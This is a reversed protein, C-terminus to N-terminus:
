LNWASEQRGIVGGYGGTGADRDMQEAFWNWSMYNDVPQPAPEYRVMEAAAEVALGLSMVRDDNPSGTMRGDKRVYRMLENITAACPVELDGERLASNLQDIMLPKSQATTRFGAKKRMPQRGRQVNPAKEWYLNPYNVRRNLTKLTSLGHTNSEVCIIATGYYWGLNALEFGFDDPDIKGHWHAAVSAKVLGNEGDLYPLRIVHASCFDGGSVNASTDAGIAYRQGWEYESFVELNGKSPDPHFESIGEFRVTEGATGAWCRDRMELMLNVDFVTQGSRIFAVAPDYPYEQHLQWEPLERKKREYWEGDRGPNANWPMFVPTFGNIGEVARNWFDEFFGGSGNATSLAFIRGGIDAAPEISAWTEAENEFFAWEDIIIRYATEGRAPSNKAPSSTMRSDNSLTFKLQGQDIRRPGRERIWDPLRVYGYVVKALLKISDEERRSLMIFYRGPAFFAEWFCVAAAITSYGIQRAKLAIVKSEGLMTEIIVKQGDWPAFLVSGTEESPNQVHWYNEFFYVPDKQCKRFEVEFILSLAPRAVEGPVTM